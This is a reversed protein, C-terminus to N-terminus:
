RHARPICCCVLTGGRRGPGIDLKGGITRARYEMIHLGMGTAQKRKAASLGMGDDEVSLELLEARGILRISIRRGASHKIANSVAEQAIRYLHTAMPGNEVAVPGKSAFRCRLKFRDRTTAALEELASPLGETELRVPFLGRSLQRSETIAQDLVAAIRRATRAEPRTQASLEQHLANADFALSVLHQCLGDHIDQGIRAQERDSIELLQRELRHRETINTGVGIYGTLEGDQDRTPSYSCDFVVPGAEVVSDFADGGLARRANDLITPIHAYAEVVSRGVNSGPASALAKLAQGGEFRIIGDRDVAFILLPAGTIIARIRAESQRLTEEARKRETIDRCVGMVSTVDGQEGYLPALRTEIWQDGVALGLPEDRYVPKGTQFVEAVVRCHQQAAEHPFLEEQALGILQEPRRQWFSAATSNAYQLRIDRDLIFIADPSSEALTRYRQESARLAAQARAAETEDTFMALLHQEGQSVFSSFHAIITLERGFTTRCQCEIEQPQQTELAAEARALMGDRRWSELRRFDQQRLQEVTGGIIRALAENVIVCQGSAKYAAIGVTSASVLRTNLELADALSQEAQKRQTIDELVGDIFDMEGNPDRHATANVSGYIATGDKKKLRVEYNLLTGQRLLDALFAERERPDQYLDAVSVKQFEEVSDYGHMRALAPNAHVFGGDPGPRNRYVGVNLNTVLSRYREESQSLAANAAQLELTRERVRQELKDHAERLAANAAQLEETRERVRQELKDHAERLATEARKRESIDIALFAFRPHAGPPVRLPCVTALAWGGPSRFGTSYEFTVPAKSEQSERLKRLWLGLTPPPVGLAASSVRRMGEITRGYALALPVNASLVLLERELLEVMGRLGGPSDYFARMLEESERLAGEARKAETIDRAVVLICLRGDPLALKKENLRMLCLEGSKRINWVEHELAPGRSLASLHAEVQTQDEPPVFARVNQGLLEDRSYGFVHCLAQNVDLITGNLDELLIGDPSLEFLTRYLEEQKALALEARKRETIDLALAAVRTVNSAPDLVPNAFNMFHRGARTDEFQAPQRSRIVQDFMARRREGVDPELLDFIKKGSVEGAPLGLSRSLVENCVLITGERDLLLAPTPVSSLFARLTEESQRLAQESQKRATIDQGVIVLHFRGGFKVGSSRIEVEILSGDKRRALYEGASSGHAKVETLTRRFDRRHEELSHGTVNSMPQGPLRGQEYGLMADLAPNTLVITGAEDVLLVAEAMSELVRAQMQIQEQARLRETVDQEVAVMLTRGQVELRNIVAECYIIAGDKRRNKFTGHWTGTSQLTDLAERMVAAAEAEPLASFMSAPQGLVESREYGWIRQGAPNMQVIVGREDTVVVGEAMNELIAAQTQLLERTRKRETIDETLGAIRYVEGRTNRVPFARDRIWRVAGDPRLIRYELDYRGAAQDTQARRVVEDRDAPHVAAAWSLPERYLEECKRGWIREYGPSIYAMENKSVNTLWFVETINNIVQEFRELAEALRSSTVRHQEAETKWQATREEVIRSLDRNLRTFEATLWGATCFVVFRGFNNWVALWGALPTGRGWFWEVMFITMVAVSSVMVAHWKGAGWGAFVVILMYFLSFSMGAPTMYDLAGLALVCFLAAATNTLPSSQRFRAASKRILVKM